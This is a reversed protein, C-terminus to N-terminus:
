NKKKRTILVVAAIIVLIAAVIIATTGTRGFVSGTESPAESGAQPANAAEKPDEGSSEGTSTDTGASANGEQAPTEGVNAEGPEGAENPEGIDGPEEEGPLGSETETIEDQMVVEVQGKVIVPNQAGSSTGKIHLNTKSSLSIDLIDGHNLGSDAVSLTMTGVLVTDGGNADGAAKLKILGASGGSYFNIGDKKGTLDYEGRGNEVFDTLTLGPSFEMWFAFASVDVNTNGTNTLFIDVDVTGGAEVDELETLNNTTGEKPVLTVTFISDEGVAAAISMMSFLMIFILVLALSVHLKKM